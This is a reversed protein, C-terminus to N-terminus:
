SRGAALKAVFPHLERSFPVDLSERFNLTLLRVILSPNRPPLLQARGGRDFHIFRSRGLAEPLSRTFSNSFRAHFQRYREQREAEMGPVAKRRLWKGWIPNQLFASRWFSARVNAPAPFPFFLLLREPQVRQIAVEIEWWLGQSKGVIAVVATAREMFYRVADQWDADAVYLRAAGLEPEPEGPRGLAIVPGLRHLAAALRSEYRVPVTQSTAPFSPDILDDDQFSRLLFVPPRPDRLLLELARRARMRRGRAILRICWPFAGLVAPALAVFVLVGILESYSEMAAGFLVFWLSTMGFVASWGAASTLWGAVPRRARVPAVEFPLTKAVTAKGGTFSTM